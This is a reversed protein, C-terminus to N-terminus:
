VRWQRCARPMGGPFIWKLGVHAARFFLVSVWWPRQIFLNLITENKRAM